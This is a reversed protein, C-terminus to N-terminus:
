SYHVSLKTLYRVILSLSFFIVELDNDLPVKIIKGQDIHIFKSLTRVLSALVKGMENLINEYIKKDDEPCRAICAIEIATKLVREKKSSGVTRLETLDNYVTNRTNILIKEYNGEKYGVAALQLSKLANELDAIAPVERTPLELIIRETFRNGTLILSFQPDSLVIQDPDHFTRMFTNAHRSCKQLYYLENSYTYQEYDIKCTIQLALENKALRSNVLKNFDTQRIRVLISRDVSENRHFFSVVSSYLGRITFLKQENKNAALIESFEVDYEIGNVKIYTPEDIKNPINVQHVIVINLFDDPEVEVDSFILQFM